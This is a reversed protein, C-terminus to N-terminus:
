TQLEAFLKVSHKLDSLGCQMQFGEGTEVQPLTLRLQLEDQSV